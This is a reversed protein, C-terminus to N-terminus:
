NILASELGDVALKKLEVPVETYVNLNVDVAHGQQDAVLKPDVNMGRMLTSHTRRLVLFNVWDLGVTKLKPRIYRRWVNDRSLPNELNESPFLWATPGTDPMQKMWVALDKLLGESFAAKRVSKTSKPTDVIGRYVRETIDVHFKSIAGRRLAFIEGPRMGAIVGFKVILRERLDLAEFLKKVEKTKLSRTPTTTCAKPTFLLEAPNRRIAGEAVAFDFIQHLDWRLHAVTSFSLGAEAKMDLLGQLEDREFSVIPRKELPEILHFRIRDETTCRTSQKWKRRCFPFVVNRVFDGFSMEAIPAKAANIPQLIEALKSLAETKTMESVLGLVRNRRHGDEWWQGVWMWGAPRRIKKVSGKQFRKPM